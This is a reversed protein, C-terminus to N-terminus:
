LGLRRRGYGIAGLLGSGLLALTGPEPTTTSGTYISLTGIAVTNQGNIDSVLFQLAGVDALSSQYGIFIASGDGNSNSNGNETVTAILNLSTDYVNLTAVFPGFADAQIQAGGGFTGSNFITVISDDFGTQDRNWILHEGPNFNGNWGNGQDRREFPDFDNLGVIGTIGGNSTFNQPTSLVSFTPGLQGWDVYDTGAWASSSVLLLCFVFCFAFKKVSLSRQRLLQM